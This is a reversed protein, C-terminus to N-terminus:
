KIPCNKQNLAGAPCCVASTLRKWDVKKPYGKGHIKEPVSQM